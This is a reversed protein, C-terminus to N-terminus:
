IRDFRVLGEKQQMRDGVILNFRLKGLKINSLLKEGNLIKPTTHGRLNIGM